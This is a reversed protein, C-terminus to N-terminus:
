RCLDCYRWGGGGGGSRQNVNTNSRSGRSSGSARGSLAGRGRGGAGLEISHGAAVIDDACREEEEEEEEEVAIIQEEEEEMTTTTATISRVVGPDRCVVLSLFLVSVFYFALCTRATVPGITGYSRHVLRSTAGSLLLLCAVPGFWHPGLIGCNFKAVCYPFLLIMNGLKNNNNNNNRRQQQKRRNNCCPCLWSRVRCYQQMIFSSSPTTTTSHINRQNDHIGMLRELDDDTIRNNNNIRGVGDDGYTEDLVDEFLENSDFFSRPSDVPMTMNIATSNNNNGHRMKTVQRVQSPSSTRRGDDDDDTCVLASPIGNTIQLPQM